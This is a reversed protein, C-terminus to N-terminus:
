IETAALPLFNEQMWLLRNCIAKHSIMVGKPQGTSGSTYIVYALNEARTASSPNKESETAIEQWQRNLDIATAQSASVVAHCQQHTLVVSAQADALMWALRERPYEPDLPAYAAGAKLVGLMGVVLELSRELCMGVVMDPGVGLKQLFHALRNARENLERYTMQGGEVVVAVRDPSREVQAEFLAHLLHNQPYLRGTDNWEQLTQRREAPTLLPLTTIPQEISTVISELLTEYHGIMREITAAEFLDTNYEVVGQLGVPTEMLEMALDFKATESSV